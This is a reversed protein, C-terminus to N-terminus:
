NCRKEDSYSINNVTKQCPPKEPHIKVQKVSFKELIPSNKALKTSKWWKIKHIIDYFCVRVWGWGHRGKGLIVKFQRWIFVSRFMVTSDSDLFWMHCHSRFITLYLPSRFVLCQFLPVMQVGSLKTDVIWIGMLLVTNLHCRFLLNFQITNLDGDTHCVLQGNNLHRAVAM